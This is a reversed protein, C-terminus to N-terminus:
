KGQEEQQLDGIAARLNLEFVRLSTLESEIRDLAADWEFPDREVHRYRNERIYALDDSM